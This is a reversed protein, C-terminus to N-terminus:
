CTHIHVIILSIIARPIARGERDNSAAVFVSCTLMSRMVGCCNHTSCQIVRIFLNLKRLIVKKRIISLFLM